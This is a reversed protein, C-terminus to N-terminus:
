GGGASRGDRARRGDIMLSRVSRKSPRLRTRRDTPQRAVADSRKKAHGKPAGWVREAAEAQRPNAAHRQACNDFIIGTGASELGLVGAGGSLASWRGFAVEVAERRGRRRRLVRPGTWYRLERLAVGRGSPHVGAATREGGTVSRTSPDGLRRRRIRGTACRSIPRGAEAGRRHDRNRGSCGRTVRGTIASRSRARGTNVGFLSRPYCRPVLWSCGRECCPRRLATASNRRGKVIWCGIM